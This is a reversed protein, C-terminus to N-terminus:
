PNWRFNEDHFEKPIEAMNLGRAKNQLRVMRNYSYMSIQGNSHMRDMHNFASILRIIAKATKM